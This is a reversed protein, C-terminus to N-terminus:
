PVCSSLPTPAYPRAAKELAAIAAARDKERFIASGAVLMDAGAATVLPTTEVNVGGDVGLVIGRGTRKETERIMRAIKQIKPLQNPMFKQGGFGPNVTMVMITDVQDMIESLAEPPTAPCLAVGAKCGLDAIVQLTRSLHWNDEVHVTILDAGTKAVAELYPDVPAIMLHADFFAKSHPRLAKLVPIGFSINPVFHGDMVDLHVWPASSIEKLEQGLCSFDASLISPSIIPAGRTEGSVPDEGHVPFSHSAAIQTM